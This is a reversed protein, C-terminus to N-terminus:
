PICYATVGNPLIPCLCWNDLLSSLRFTNRSSDALPLNVTPPQINIGVIVYMCWARLWSKSLPPENKVWLKGAPPRYAGWRPGSCICKAGSAFSNQCFFRSIPKFEHRYCAFFTPANGMADGGLQFTLPRWYSVESIYVGLYHSLFMIYYNHNNWYDAM